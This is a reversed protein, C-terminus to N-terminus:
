HNNKPEYKQKNFADFNIIIAFIRDNERRKGQQYSNQLRHVKRKM